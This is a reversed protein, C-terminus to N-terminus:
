RTLGINSCCGIHSVMTLLDTKGSADPGEVVLFGYGDGYALRMLIKQFSEQWKRGYTYM